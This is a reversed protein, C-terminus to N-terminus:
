RKLKYIKYNKLKLTANMNESEKDLYWIKLRTIDRTSSEDKM